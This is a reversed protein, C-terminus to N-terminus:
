KRYAKFRKREMEAFESLNRTIKKKKREPLTSENVQKLWRHLRWASQIVTVAHARSQRRIRSERIWRLTKEQFRTPMFMTHIFDILLAFVVLGIIVMLMSVIQAGWTVPIYIAFNDAAYATILCQLAVWWSIWFNFDATTRREFVYIGMGGALSSLFVVAFLFQLPKRAYLMKVSLVTNFTPSTRKKYGADRRIQRRNSWVPSNDRYVKFIWYIRLFTALGLSADKSWELFPYPFVVILLVEFIFLYIM